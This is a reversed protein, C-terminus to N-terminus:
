AFASKLLDVYKMMLEQGQDDDWDAHGGEVDIYEVRKGARRLAREMIQSQQVPVIRDETGHVLLVPCQIESVRLRPSGAELIARDTDLNGIRKTWFEFILKDPTDDTRKEWQLMEILDSVGCIAIAAKYLEPRRVAGMLAAYGGYSTGVIAVRDKDLNFDAIVKAVADEVDEQMRDHWRRWGAEAFAKGYGGSGRFNPQLVWWGMSAFIQAQRDFRHYDRVEPGGHPLVVLPGPAGGVAATLYAEIRSGDRTDVEIRHGKGLREIDLTTRAGLPVANRTQRDYFIFTGPDNPGIAQAIFRNHDASLDVIVVDCENGFFQVLAQHHATLSPDEFRYELKDTYYAVGLWKDRKDYLGDVAEYGEKPLIPEGASFDALNVDRVRALDEGEARNLIRVTDPTAGQGVYSFEPADRLRTRRLFRWETEGPARGYWSEMTRRSNVDRRLVPVGNHTQWGVTITSGSEFKVAVGTNINVKFLALSGDFEGAPMLIHDPDDHLFDTVTGLYPSYRLREREHQFMVVMNGSEIDISVVRHTAHDKFRQVQRSAMTRTRREPNKTYISILMRKEDVWHVWRVNLAGLDIQRGAQEPNSASRVTIRARPEEDTGLQELVALREGSPSMAAGKVGRLHFFDSMQHPQPTFAKALGTQSAWFAASGAAAMLMAQRRSVGSARKKVKM